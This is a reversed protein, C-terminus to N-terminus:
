TAQANISPIRLQVCKNYEALRQKAIELYKGEQDIGIFSIQYGEEDNLKSAALASTGSGVFPDLWVVPKHHPLILRALYMILKIPKVTPHINTRGRETRSAKAIYFFRSAGIANGEDYNIVESDKHTISGWGQYKEISSKVLHPKTAGVKQTQKDLMQAAEEDLILNAPWRGAPVKYTTPEGRGYVKGAVIGGSTHPNKGQIDDAGNIDIRCADVNLAGCEWKEINQCYTGDLPKQALVIPEYAPKLGTGYGDWTKALDTAPVTINFEIEGTFNAITGKTLGARGKGVIERKAEEITEFPLQLFDKIRNYQEVTLQENHSAKNYLWGTMKGNKSPFLATLRKKPIGKEECFKIVYDIFWQTSKGGIKDFAKSINMSKPFGSGYLWCLTDRIVFGADELGCVLRHSTRTGGFAMLYGGPKLVRLAETAWQYCFRQLGEMAMLRANPFDPSECKCPTGSFKWHGCKRCKVNNVRSFNPLKKFGGLKGACSENFEKSAKGQWPSDWDKGMFELGYPPDCIVADVSKEPMKAMETICDGHILKVDSM